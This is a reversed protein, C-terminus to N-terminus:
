YLNQNLFVRVIWVVTDSSQITVTKKFWVNYLINKKYIDNELMEQM